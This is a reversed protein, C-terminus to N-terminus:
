EFVLVSIRQIDETDWMQYFNAFGNLFKMDEESYNKGSALALEVCVMLSHEISRLGFYEPYGLKMMYKEEAITKLFEREESTMKALFNEDVLLLEIYAMSLGFSTNISRTEIQQGYYKMEAYTDILMSTADERNALESLGNFHKIAFAVGKRENDAAVFDYAMPFEMCAEILEETSLENLLEEPLQCVEWMEQGTQLTRWEESGPLVSYYKSYLPEQVTRTTAVEISEAEVEKDTCAYFIVGTVILFLTICTYLKMRKKM